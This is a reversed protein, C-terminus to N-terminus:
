PKVQKLEEKFLRIAERKTYGYYNRIILYGNHIDSIKWTGRISKEATM